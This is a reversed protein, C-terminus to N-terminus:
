NRDGSFRQYLLPVVVLTLITSFSLGFIISWALPAWTPDAFLLPAVGGATTITTLIIPQVRSRAGDFIANDVDSGDARNSNIRDILIIANNVVIGALAVVGIFAPFSLPVGVATLGFAVGIFALPITAIMYLPQRFSNFQWTLLAFIAIVGIIMALFLDTFSEQVDQQQGGFSVSVAGALTEDPDFQDRFTQLVQGATSEPATDASVTVQRNGGTHTIAPLSQNLNFDVINALPTSGRNTSITTGLLQNVTVSGATGFGNAPRTDAFEIIVPIDDADTKISTAELGTVRTRLLTAVSRPTVGLRSAQQRDVTAVLESSGVSLSMDVNEAGPVAALENMIRRASTELDDLSGGNLNIQVPKGTPPGGSQQNVTVEAETVDPLTDNLDAVIQQSTSARRETLGVVIGAINSSGTGLTIGGVNAGAGVSTLLSSINDRDQLASIVPRTAEQTQDLPTGEPLELDVTITDLDAPPFLTTQLTGTLPLAVAAVFFMSMSAFIVTRRRTNKLLTRLRNSYWSYVKEIRERTWATVPNKKKGNTFFTAAVAPIIGLAIVLAALLVTSVTAPITSIFEGIIGGALLMPAFAFVTTLTGATLPIQFERLTAYAAAQSTDTTQSRTAYGETIVIAADVLIGIVLILSFLTLSNITYGLLYLAGLGLLFSFPVALSALIAERWGLFVILVLLIILMTVAGSSVLNSLDSSIQDASNRITSVQMDAPIEGNSRLQDITSNAEDVVSVISGAGSTKFVDLSVAPQLQQGDGAYQNQVSLPARTDTVTAVEDLRITTRNDTTIPVSRVDAISNLRGAFRVTYIDGGEEISGIPINTNAENLQGVLQQATLDYQQLDPQSVTVAFEREPDGSVNVRSINEITTLEDAIRDATDGLASLEYPGSIAYTVAPVDALSIEQVQPDEADTPLESTAQEVQNRVDSLAKVKDTGVAFQVTIQSFGQQSTSNLEEIDTIGEINEEIPNTVLTEVDEASAGPLATTVVAIPVDIEPASEKPMQFIAFVGFVVVAVLFLAAIRINNTFFGWAPIPQTDNNSM